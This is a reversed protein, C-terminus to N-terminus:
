PVVFDKFLEGEPPCYEYVRLEPELKVKTSGEDFCPRFVELKGGLESRSKKGELARLIEEIGDAIQGRGRSIADPNNPKIEVVYCTAGDVRICDVRRSGFTLEAATCKSSDAQIRKHENKGLEMRARFQPDNAGRLEDDLLHQISALTRTIEAAIRQAGKQLDEDDEKMLRDARAVLKDAEAKISLDYDAEHRAQQLDVFTQAITVLDASPQFLDKWPNKERTAFAQSIRKMHQHQFSRALAERLRRRDSGTGSILPCAGRATGLRAGPSLLATAIRDDGARTRNM